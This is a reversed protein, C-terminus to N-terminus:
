PITEQSFREETKMLFTSYRGSGIQQKTVSKTKLHLQMRQEWWRVRQESNGKNKIEKLNGAKDVGLRGICRYLLHGQVDQLAHHQAAVTEEQLHFLFNGHLPKDSVDLHLYCLNLNELDIM